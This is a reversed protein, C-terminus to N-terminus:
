NLSYAVRPFLKALLWRAVLALRSLPVAALLKILDWAVFPLVGKAVATILASLPNIGLTLALWLALWLAGSLYVLLLQALGAVLARRLLLAGSPAVRGAVITGLLFGVIYGFTPSLAYVAGGGMAFVPLGALGLVIYTTVCRWARKGRTFLLYHLFLTQLTFPVPSVPAAVVVRAGVALLAAGILADIAELL